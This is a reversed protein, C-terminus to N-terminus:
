ENSPIQSARMQGVSLYYDAIDIKEYRLNRPWTNRSTHVLIYTEGIDIFTVGLRDTSVYNVSDSFKPNYAFGLKGLLNDPSLVICEVGQVDTIGFRLKKISESLNVLSIQSQIVRALEQPIVPDPM